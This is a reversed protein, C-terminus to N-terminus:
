DEFSNHNGNNNSETNHVWINTYKHMFLQTANTYEVPSGLALCGISTPSHFAYYYELQAPRLICYMTNFPVNQDARCVLGGHMHDWDEELNHM